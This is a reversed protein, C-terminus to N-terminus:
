PLFEFKEIVVEFEHQLRRQPNGYNYANMHIRESGASPVGSTFVHQAVMGAPGPASGRFTRFSVRGPEWDMWYSLRGPPTDFRFTNAPVAYPQVVFQADKDQPEGWRSIEIDMERPPGDEDWTFLAFIASPELHSVDEIVFRYSGFGLSRSLKIESRVWREGQKWVRLHLYGHADTFASKLASDQWGARPDGPPPRLEWQFGSFQLFLPPEEPPTGKVVALARVPGSKEPLAPVTVPARYGADVLLAAYQSGPHTRASWTSDPQIATFPHDQAPQVWWMGSLAFLVIREGPLAGNVRGAIQELRDPSGDGARPVHTFEISPPIAQRPRCNILTACAALSVAVKFLVSRAIRAAM